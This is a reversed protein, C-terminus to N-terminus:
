TNCRFLTYLEDLEIIGHMELSAPTEGHLMIVQITHQPWAFNYNTCLSLLSAIPRIDHLDRFHNDLCASSHDNASEM